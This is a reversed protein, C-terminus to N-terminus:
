GQGQGSPPATNSTSHSRNRCIAPTCGPIDWLAHIYMEALGNIEKSQSFYDPRNM